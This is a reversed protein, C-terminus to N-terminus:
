CSVTYRILESVSVVKSCYVESDEPEEEEIEPVPVAEIGDLQNLRGSLLRIREVLPSVVLSIRPRLLLQEWHTINPYIFGWRHRPAEEMGTVVDELNLLVVDIGKLIRDHYQPPDTALRDLITTGQEYGLSYESMLRNRRAVVSESPVAPVTPASPVAAAAPRQRRTSRSM